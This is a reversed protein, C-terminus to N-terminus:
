IESVSNKSGRRYLKKPSKASDKLSEVKEHTEDEYVEETELYQESSDDQKKAVTKTEGTEKDRVSIEFSGAL